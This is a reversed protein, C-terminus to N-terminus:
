KWILQNKKLNKFLNFYIDSKIVRSTANQKTKGSISDPNHVYWLGYNLDFGLRNKDKTHKFVSEKLDNDIFDGRYFTNFFKVNVSSSNVGYDFGAGLASGPKTETFVPSFNQAFTQAACSLFIILGCLRLPALVKFM